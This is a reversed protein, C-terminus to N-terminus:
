GVLRLLGYINLMTLWLGIAIGLARRPTKKVLWAAFPTLIMGGIIMPMVISWLFTEFGILFGFTLVGALSILPETFEVTGVAKKTNSGTLIFTPTMVPGWGGGGSVDIFGALFGLAGLHKSKWHRKEPNPRKWGSTHKYLITAGMCLLVVRVYPKAFGLGAVYVLSWAGLVAGLVGCLLLPKVFGFEVNRLKHHSLASVFDVVMESTHVSASAIVPAIGFTVLVTASTVGYGMGLSADVFGCVLGALLIAFWGMM